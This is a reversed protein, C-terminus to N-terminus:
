GGCNLVLDFTVNVSVCMSSLVFCALVSRRHELTRGTEARRKESIEHSSSALKPLMHAENNLPKNLSLDYVVSMAFQTLRSLNM